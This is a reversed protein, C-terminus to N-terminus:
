IKVASGIYSVLFSSEGVPESPVLFGDRVGALWEKGVLGVQYLLMATLGRPTPRLEYMEDVKFLNSAARHMEAPTIFMRWDHGDPPILGIVREGVLVAVFYSLTTRSITDYVLMGGPKLVRHVERLARPVDTLHELIDSCVVADFSEDAFPLSYASAEIFRSSLGERKCVVEAFELAPLSIDIGTVQYGRRSLENSVIGGGCGVDLVSTAERSRSGDNSFKRDFYGVRAPNMVYLGTNAGGFDWKEQSNYPTVNDIDIVDPDLPSLRDPFEEPVAILAALLAFMAAVVFVFAFSTIGNITPRLSM